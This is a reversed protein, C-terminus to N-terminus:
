MLQYLKYHGQCQPENTGGGHGVLSSFTMDMPNAVPSPPNQSLREKTIDVDMM